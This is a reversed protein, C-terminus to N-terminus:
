EVFAGLVQLRLGGRCNVERFPALIEEHMFIRLINSAEDNKTRSHAPQEPACSRSGVAGIASPSQHWTTLEFTQSRVARAQKLPMGPTASPQLSVSIGFHRAPCSGCVGLPRVPPSKFVQRALSAGSLQACSPAPLPLLPSSAIQVGFMSPLALAGGGGAGGAGAVGVGAGESGVGGM